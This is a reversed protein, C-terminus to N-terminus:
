FYYSALVWNTNASETYIPSRNVHIKRVTAEGISAQSGSSGNCYGACQFVVARQLVQLINCASQHEVHVGHVKSHKMEDNEYQQLLFVVSM